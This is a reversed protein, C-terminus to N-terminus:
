PVLLTGAGKLRRMVPATETRSVGDLGGIRNALYDYLDDLDRCIVAAAVNTPGTVAAAYGIETHTALAQTVSTLASPAVTLWLMAEAAYGLLTPEIEVDFYLVNSRRLEELRRRVTSESWGTAAALTPFSARGDTALAALLQNDVTTLTVPEVPREAPVTGGPRLARVQDPSLAAVRGPWGETGAVARLICHATVESIRPARPLQQLLLEGQHRQGATRTICSIETGGSLLTVWSTDARRALATAVPVALDPTCRM